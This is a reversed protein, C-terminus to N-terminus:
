GCKKHLMLIHFALVLATELQIDPLPPTAELL